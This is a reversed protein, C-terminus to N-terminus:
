LAVQVASGLVVGDTGSGFLQGGASPLPQPGAGRQEWGQLSRPSPFAGRERGGPQSPPHGGAAAAARGCPDARAWRVPVQPFVPRDGAGGDWGPLVSLQPEARPRPVPQRSSRSVRGEAAQGKGPNFDRSSTWSSGDHGSGETRWCPSSPSTTWLVRGELSEPEPPVTVGAVQVPM